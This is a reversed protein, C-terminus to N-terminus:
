SSKKNKKKSKRQQTKNVQPAPTSASDAVLAAHLFTGITLVYHRETHNAVHVAITSNDVRRVFVSSTFACLWGYQAKINDMYFM